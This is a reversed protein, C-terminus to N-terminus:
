EPALPGSADQENPADGGIWALALEWAVALVVPGVFLGVVGHALVGGIVGIFVVPMPTTLGRALLFPKLVNDMYNVTAMCLTFAIAPGTELNTWGWFVMPAAIILPGIQIIGLVLIAVTLLSAGPAHALWMGVGGIVAQMLSLGIVGRSVAHITATALSLFMEGRAPDIRRALAKAERLLRPGPAFFFGMLIVSVLFKLTGAGANRFTSLLYEGVPKLEPLLDAIAGRLNTSATAWFDFIQQGFVPWDKVSDPPPPITLDGSEMREILTRTADVLGVGLWTAPGVVVLLGAVTILIAALVRRGGLLAALWSFMPYLAVALAVSWVLIPAFPQVIVAAWFVLLGILGLRIALEISTQDSGRPKEIPEENAM